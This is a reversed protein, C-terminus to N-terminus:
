RDEAATSHRHASDKDRADQDPSDVVGVESDVVVSDVEGLVVEV